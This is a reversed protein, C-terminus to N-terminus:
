APGAVGARRRDDAARDDHGDPAIRRRDPDLACGIHDRETVERRGLSSLMASQPNTTQPRFLRCGTGWGWLGRVGFSWVGFKWVGFGAVGFGAVGCDAIRLGCTGLGCDAIRM